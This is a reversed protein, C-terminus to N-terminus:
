DPLGVAVEDCFEVDRLVGRVDSFRAGAVILGNVCVELADTDFGSRRLDPAKARPDGEYIVVPAETSENAILAPVHGTGVVDLMRAEVDIGTKQLESAASALPRSLDDTALPEDDEGCGTSLVAAAVM